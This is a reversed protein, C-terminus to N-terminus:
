DKRCVFQIRGSDRTAPDTTFAEYVKIERFGSKILASQVDNKDHAYQVHQETLKEFVDGKRIFLIVDMTLRNSTNDFTNHWLCTAADSDDFYVEGNMSLLKHASSIDFLLKGGPKLIRHSARFFEEMGSSDLYNPGDCASIVVDFKKGASMHRMDQQIFVIDRGHQRAERAAVDLMESSLDSAVVDHGLDYLRSTISGTGCSAEFIRLEKGGLLAHIYSAWADYDVDSMLSNYAQALHRYANM